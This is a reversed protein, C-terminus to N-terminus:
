RRAGKAARHKALAASAIEQSCSCDSQGHQLGSSCEYDKIAALAAAFEDALAEATELRSELSDHEAVADSLKTRTDDLEVKLADVKSELFTAKVELAAFESAWGRLTQDLPHDSDEKVNARIRESLSGDTM